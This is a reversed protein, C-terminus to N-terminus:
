TAIGRIRHALRSVKRSGSNKHIVGQSVGRMIAPQAAKFAAIAAKKDGAAIAEEVRRVASRIQTKRNKNVATRRSIKRVRKKASRIRPM